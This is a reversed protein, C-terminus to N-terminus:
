QVHPLLELYAMVVVMDKKKQAEPLDSYPVMCHHTKKEPDKIEGYVWGAAAKEKVWNEHTLPCLRKAVEDIYLAESTDVKQADWFDVANRISDKQWDPASHWPEGPEGLALVTYAYWAQHCAIALAEKRDFM